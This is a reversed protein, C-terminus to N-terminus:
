PWAFTDLYDMLDEHSMPEGLYFGQGLSCGLAQIFDLEEKTEIGEAVTRMHLRTALQVIFELIAESKLSNAIGAVFMRDIKIETFPMRNLEELSSYGIGFDDASIGFGQMRLRTLCSLLHGCDKACATETVEITIRESAIGYTKVLACIYNAMRPKGLTTPSINIAFGIQRDCSSGLRVCALLQHLLSDTFQDILNEQEMLEIFESPPLLGLEPHNWRALIECSVPLGSALDVKPQFYPVFQNDQIASLLESRSWHHQPPTNGVLGTELNVALNCAM